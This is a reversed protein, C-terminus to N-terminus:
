INKYFTKWIGVKEGKSYKGKSQIKGNKSYVKWIGERLGNEYKGAEKLEGSSYYEYFNGVVKGYMYTVKRYVTKDKFYYLVVGELKNGIKYYNAKSQNTEKLDDDLWITEQAFFSTSLFCFVLAICIKSVNM